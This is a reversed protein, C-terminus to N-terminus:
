SLSFPRGTPRGKQRFFGSHATDKSVGPSPISQNYPMGAPIELDIIQVVKRIPANKKNEESCGGRAFRAGGHSPQAGRNAASHGLACGGAAAPPVGGAPGWRLARARGLGGAAWLALPPRPLALAARPAPAGPLFPPLGWLCPAALWVFVM